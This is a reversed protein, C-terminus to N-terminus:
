DNARHGPCTQGKVCTPLGMGLKGDNEGADDDSERNTVDHWQCVTHTDSMIVGHRYGWTENITTIGWEAAIRKYSLFREAVGHLPWFTPDYPAASTFMEGAHGVHCVFELPNKPDNWGGKGMFNDDEWQPLSNYIGHENLFDYADDSSFDKVYDDGM